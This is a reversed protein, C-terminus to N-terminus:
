RIPIRKMTVDISTPRPSIAGVSVRAAAVTSRSWHALVSLAQCFPL